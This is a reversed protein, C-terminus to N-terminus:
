EVYRVRISPLRDTIRRFGSSMGTENSVVLLQLSRFRPLVQSLEEVQLECGELSLTELTELALLNVLGRGRVNTNGLMLTKLNRIEAFYQLDGDGIDSHSLSLLQLKDPLYIAKFNINQIGDLYLCELSQLCRFELRSLRFMKVNQMYLQRLPISAIKEFDPVFELASGNLILLRLNAFMCIQNFARESIATDSCDLERVKMQCLVNCTIQTLDEDACSRFGCLRIHGLPEEDHTKATAQISELWVKVDTESSNPHLRTNSSSGLLSLATSDISLSPLDGLHNRLFSALKRVIRCFHSMSTSMNKGGSLLAEWADDCKTSTIIERWSKVGLALAYEELGVLRLDSALQKELLEDYNLVEDMLKNEFAVATAFILVTARSPQSLSVAQEVSTIGLHRTLVHFIAHVFNGDHQCGLLLQSQDLSENM